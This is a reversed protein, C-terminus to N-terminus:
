IKNFTKQGVSAERDCWRALSRLASAIGIAEHKNVVRRGHEFDEAWRDMHAAM